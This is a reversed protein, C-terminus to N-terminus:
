DKNYAQKFCQSYSLDLDPVHAIAYQGRGDITLYGAKTLVNRYTDTTQSHRTFGKPHLNKILEKRTFKTKEESIDNILQLLRRWHTNQIDM